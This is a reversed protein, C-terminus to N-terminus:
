RTVLGIVVVYLSHTAIHFRCKVNTPSLLCFVGNQPNTVVTQLLLSQLRKAYFVRCPPVNLQRVGRPRPAFTKQTDFACCKHFTVVQYIRFTEKKM